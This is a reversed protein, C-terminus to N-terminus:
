GKKSKKKAPKPVKNLLWGRGDTDPIATKWPLINFVKRIRKMALFQRFTDVTQIYYWYDKSNTDKQGKPTTRLILSKDDGHLQNFNERFDDGYRFYQEANSLYVARVPIGAAKAARSVSRLGKDKRLDGRIPFVRGKRHLDAVRNYLTEDTLFTPVKMAKYQKKTRRLRWSITARNQKYLKACRTCTEGLEKAILERTAKASKKKWANVFDQSNSASRFIVGYIRHLDVIVSDFDLPVLVDPNMWSAIIYLQDAGVGVLVGKLEEVHKRFIHHHLENSVVYHSNRTIEKPREDAELNKFASVDLEQAVAVGTSRACLLAIVCLTIIYRWVPQTNGFMLFQGEM